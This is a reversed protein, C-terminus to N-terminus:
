SFDNRLSAFFYDSGPKREKEKWATLNFRSPTLSMGLEIANKSYRSIRPLTANLFGSTNRDLPSWIKRSKHQKQGILMAIKAGRRKKM